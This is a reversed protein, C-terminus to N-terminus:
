VDFSSLFLIIFIGREGFQLLNPDSIFQHLDSEFDEEMVLYDLGLKM